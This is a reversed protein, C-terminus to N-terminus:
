IALELDELAFSDPPFMVAAPKDAPRSDLNVNFRSGDRGIISGEWGAFDGRLVTVRVSKRRRLAARIDTAKLAQAVTQETPM